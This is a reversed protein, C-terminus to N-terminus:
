FLLVEIAGVYRRSDKLRTIERMYRLAAATNEEELIAKERELAAKERELEKTVERSSALLGRLEEPKEVFKEKQAKKRAIAQDRESIAKESVEKFDKGKRVLAVYKVQALKEDQGLQTLIEKLTTDYKEIIFNM